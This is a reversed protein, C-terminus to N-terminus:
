GRNIHVASLMGVGHGGPSAWLWNKTGRQSLATFDFEVQMTAWGRLTVKSWCRGPDDFSLTRLAVEEGERMFHVAWTKV